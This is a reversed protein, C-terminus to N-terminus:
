QSAEQSFVRFPVFTGPGSLRLLDRFGTPTRSGTRGDRGCSRGAVRVGAETKARARRERNSPNDPRRRVVRGARPATNAVKRVVAVAREVVPHLAPTLKEAVSHAGRPCPYFGPLRGPRCRQTKGWRGGGECAPPLSRESQYYCPSVNEEGSTGTTVCVRPPPHGKM